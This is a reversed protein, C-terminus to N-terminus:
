GGPPRQDEGLLRQLGQRRRRPRSPGSCCSAPRGSPTGRRTASTSTATTRRKTLLHDPQGKPDGHSLTLVGGAVRVNTTGPPLLPEWDGTDKGNFLKVFGEGAPRGGLRPGGAAARLALDARVGGPRLHEPRVRRPLNGLPDRPVEDPVGAPRRGRQRVGGGAPGPRRGAAHNWADGAKVAEHATPEVTPASDKETAFCSPTVAVTGRAAARDAPRLVAETAGELRHAHLHPEPRDLRGLRRRAPRPGPRRGRRRLKGPGAGAARELGLRRAPPAPRLVPRGPLGPSPPRRPWRGARCPTTSSTASCGNPRACTPAPWRGQGGAAPDGCARRKEEAAPAPRRSASRSPRPRRPPPRFTDTKTVFGPREVKLSYTEGPVVQLRIPRDKGRTTLKLNPGDITVLADPPDVRVEAEAAAEPWWSLAVRALAAATALGAVAALVLWLGSPAKRRRPLPPPSIESFPVTEDAPAPPASEDAERRASFPALAEIVEAPTRYRQDRDKALMRAIVGVAGGACRGAARAARRCARRGGRLREQGPVAAQGLPPLLPHLGALLHREPHRREARDRAQEPSVYDATGMFTQYRTKRADDDESPVRALGFDLVKVAKDKRVMLNHPKVDRHVMGREHAHQLGEAAQAACRCAFGAPLPGKQDVLRDLSVGEVYEMVLYLIDGAQAADITQAVNPHSLRGGARMEQLFRGRADPSSVADPRMVKIAVLRDLFTHRAKWVAGMGGEGLKGLVEFKGSALLEPPFDAPAGPRPAPQGKPAAARLRGVFTDPRQGELRSACESCGELHSAVTDAEPRPLRGLGFDSLQKASPHDAQGEPM